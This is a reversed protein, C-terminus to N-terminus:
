NEPGSKAVSLVERGPLGKVVASLPAHLAKANTVVGHLYAQILDLRVGDVLVVATVRYYIMRLSHDFQVGPYMSVADLRTVASEVDAIRDEPVNEIIPQIFQVFPFLQEWRIHVPGPLEREPSPVDLSWRERHATHEVKHETFTELLEDYTRICKPITM